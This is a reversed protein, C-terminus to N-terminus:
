RRLHGCPRVESSGSPAIAVAISDNHVDMGVYLILDTSPAAPRSLIDSTIARTTPDTRQCNQREVRNSPRLIYTKM